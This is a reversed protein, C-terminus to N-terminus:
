RDHCSWPRTRGCEKATRTLGELWAPGREDSAALTDSRKKLLVVCLGENGTASESQGTLKACGGHRRNDSHGQGATVDGGPRFARWSGTLGVLSLALRELRHELCWEGLPAGRLRGRAGRRGKEEALSTPSVPARSHGHWVVETAQAEEM